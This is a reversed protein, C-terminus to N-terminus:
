DASVSELKLRVTGLAISDMEAKMLVAEKIEPITAFYLRIRAKQPNSYRKFFWKNYNGSIPEVYLDYAVWNEAKVVADKDPEVIGRSEITIKYKRKADKIKIVRKQACDQKLFSLVAATFDAYSSDNSFDIEYFSEKKGKIRKYTSLDITWGKPKLSGASYLYMESRDFLRLWGRTKTHTLATYSKDKIDYQLDVDLVRFGRSRAGYTLTVAQTYFPVLLFIIFVISLFIKKM